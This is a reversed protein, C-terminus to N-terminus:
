GANRAVKERLPLLSVPAARRTGDLSVHQRDQEIADGIAHQQEHEAAPEGYRQPQHIEDVERMSGERHNAAIDRRQQHVARANGEQRRKRDGKDHRSQEADRFMTEPLTKRM